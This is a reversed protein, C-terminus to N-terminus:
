IKLLIYKSANCLEKLARTVTAQATAVLNETTVQCTSEPSSETKLNMVKKYFDSNWTENEKEPVYEVTLNLTSYNKNTLFKRRKENGINEQDVSQHTPDTGQEIVAPSKVKELLVPITKSNHQYTDISKDLEKILSHDIGQIKKGNTFDSNLSFQESESRIGRGLTLKFFLFLYFVNLFKVRMKFIANAGM